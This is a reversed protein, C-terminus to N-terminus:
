QGVVQSQSQIDLSEIQVMQINRHLIKCATVQIDVSRRHPGHGESSLIESYMIKSFIFKVNISIEMSNETGCDTYLRIKQNLDTM